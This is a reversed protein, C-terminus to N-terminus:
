VRLQAVSGILVNAVGLALISPSKKEQQFDKLLLVNIQVTTITLLMLNM